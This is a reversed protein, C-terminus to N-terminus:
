QTERTWINYLDSAKASWVAKNPSVIRVFYEGSPGEDQNDLREFTNTGSPTLKINWNSNINRYVFETRDSPLYLGNVTQINNISIQYEPTNGKIPVTIESKKSLEIM